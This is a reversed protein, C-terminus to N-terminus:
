RGYGEYVQIAQAHIPSQCAPTAGLLGQHYLLCRNRALDRDSYCSSRSIWLGRQSDIEALTDCLM